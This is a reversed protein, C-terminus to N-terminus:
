WWKIYKPVAPPAPTDLIVCWPGSRQHLRDFEADTYQDIRDTSNNNCVYWLDDRTDATGRDDYGYLTQFHATFFGIAAFRGTKASWRMWAKTDKGTVNYAKIGRQECYGAVREPWSGGRVASGYETEWLLTAAAPCNAWVGCMGISCQVCSGDPNTYWGRIEPPLQMTTNVRQQACLSSASLVIAIIFILLRM